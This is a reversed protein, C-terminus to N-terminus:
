EGNQVSEMGCLRCREVHPLSEEKVDEKFVYGYARLAADVLERMQGLDLDDSPHELVVKHQMLDSVWDDQLETPEITIRM